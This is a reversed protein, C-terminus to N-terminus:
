PLEAAFRELASLFEKPQEAHIGHGSGPFHVLRIHLAHQLAFACDEDVLAAGKIPDAQMLLTPCAIGQLARAFDVGRTNERGDLVALIFNADVREKEQVTLRLEERPVDPRQKLYLELMEASSLGSQKMRLVWAFYDMFGRSETNERRVMLPPDEAVLARLCDAGPEGCLLSTLAGWSHGLLVASSEPVAHLFAVTDAVFYAVHYGAPGAARGSLGHGRLDLAYVHWRQCLAAIVPDWTQTSGTAGHLLVLPPGSRPGELYHIRMGPADFYKDQIDM